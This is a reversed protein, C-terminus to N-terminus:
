FYSFSFPNGARGNQEEFKSWKIWNKPQPFCTVFRKFIEKARAHEKYRQEFKIYAMWAEEIPEWGM